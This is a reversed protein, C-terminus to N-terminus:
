QDGGNEQRDDSQTSQPTFRKRPTPPIQGTQQSNEDTLEQNAIPEVPTNLSRIQLDPTRIGGPAGNTEITQLVDDGPADPTKHPTQSSRSPKCEWLCVPDDLARPNMGPLRDSCTDAAATITLLWEVMIDVAGPRRPMTVVVIVKSTDTRASVRSWRYWLWAVSAPVRVHKFGAEDEGAKQHAACSNTHRDRRCRVRIV